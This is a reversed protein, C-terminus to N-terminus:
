ANLVERNWRELYRSRHDNVKKWDLRATRELAGPPIRIGELEPPLIVSRNSPPYLSWRTFELQRAPDLTLQVLEQAQRAYPSGRPISFGSGVSVTNPVLEFAAPVRAAQLRATRGNWYPMIVVEGSEMLRSGHDANEVIVARNRRVIDAVAQIGPTINDEDGGLEKNFAHLWPMGYWGYAPIAVRGRYRALALDRFSTPQAAERTNWAMGFLLINFAAYFNGELAQPYVDGLSRVVGPDLADLCRADNLLDADSQPGNTVDFPASGCSALLKSTAISELQAAHLVQLRNARAFPEVFVRDLTAGWTGGTAAWTFPRGAQAQANGIGGATLAAAGGSAALLMSRRSLANIM